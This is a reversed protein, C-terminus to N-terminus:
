FNRKMLVLTTVSEKKIKSDVNKLEGIKNNDLNDRMQKKKRIKDSEKMQERKDDIDDRLKRKRKKEYNKLM